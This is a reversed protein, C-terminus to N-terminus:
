ANRKMWSRDCEIKLPVWAAGPTVCVEGNSFGMLDSVATDIALSIVLLMASTEPCLWVDLVVVVLVATDEAADDDDDDADEPPVGVVVGADVGTGCVGCSVALRSIGAADVVIVGVVDAATIGVTVSHGVETGAVDNGIDVIVAVVDTVDNDDDSGVGVVNCTDYLVSM